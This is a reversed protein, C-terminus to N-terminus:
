SGISEKYGCHHCFPSQDLRPAVVSGEKGCNPCPSSFEREEFAELEPDFFHFEDSFVRGIM